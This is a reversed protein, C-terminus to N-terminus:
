SRASAPANSRKSSKPPLPEEAVALKPAAARALTQVEFATLRADVPVACGALKWIALLEAFFEARNGFLLLVREGRQLGLRQWRAVRRRIQRRAEAPSWRNPGFPEILHGLRLETFM